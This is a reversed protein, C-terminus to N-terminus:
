GGAKPACSNQLASFGLGGKSGLITGASMLKKVHTKKCKPCAPAPERSSLVLADFSHNCSECVYEYIPMFGEGRNPISSLRTEYSTDM